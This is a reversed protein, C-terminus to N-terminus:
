FPAPQGQKLTPQYITVAIETGDFSTVTLNYKLQSLAPGGGNIAKVVERQNKKNKGAADAQSTTFGFLVVSAIVLSLAAGRAIRLYPNCTM